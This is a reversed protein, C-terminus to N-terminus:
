VFVGVYRTNVARFIEINLMNDRKGSCVGKDPIGYQFAAVIETNVPFINYLYLVRFLNNHFAFIQPLQRLREGIKGVLKIVRGPRGSLVVDKTEVLDGVFYSFSGRENPQSYVALTASPNCPDEIQDRNKQFRKQLASVDQKLDHRNTVVKLGTVFRSVQSEKVRVSPTPKKKFLSFM